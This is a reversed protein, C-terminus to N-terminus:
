HCCNKANKTKNKYKKLCGDSCLWKNDFYNGKSKEEKMGCIPDRKAFIGFM